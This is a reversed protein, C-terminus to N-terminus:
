KSSLNWLISQLLNSTPESGSVILECISRDECKNLTDNDEEQDLRGRKHELRLNEARLKSLVINSQSFFFHLNSKFRM